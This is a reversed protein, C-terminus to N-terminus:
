MNHGRGGRKGFLLQVCRSARETSVRCMGWAYSVPLWDVVDFLIAARIIGTMGVYTQCPM